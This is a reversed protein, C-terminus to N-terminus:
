LLIYYYTMIHIYPFYTVWFVITRSFLCTHNLQSYSVKSINDSIRRLVMLTM